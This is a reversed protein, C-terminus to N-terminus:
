QGLIEVDMDERFEKIWDQNMRSRYLSKASMVEQPIQNKKYFSNEIYETGLQVTDRADPTITQVVYVTDRTSNLAIGAQNVDLSFATEMFEEGADNVGVPTGYSFRGFASFWTFAGTDTAKEPYLDKLSQNDDNAKQAMELAKEKALEIGKQQKWYDVVKERAEDFTPVKQEVKESLWYAIRERTAFDNITSIRYVATNDFNNFIEDAVNVQQIRGNVPVIDVVKGLPDDRLDLQDVLDTERFELGYKDAIAQFDPSDP